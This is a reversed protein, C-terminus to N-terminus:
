CIIWPAVQLHSQLMCQFVECASLAQSAALQLKLIHDELAKLMDLFALFCQLGSGFYLFFHYVSLTLLALTKPLQNLDDSSANEAEADTVCSTILIRAGNPNYDKGSHDLPNRPLAVLKEFM